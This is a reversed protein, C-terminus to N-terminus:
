EIVIQAPADVQWSAGGPLFDLSARGKLSSSTMDVVVSTGFGRRQSPVSALGPPGGQERWVMRFRQTGDEGPDLRWSLLVVGDPVSLAGYKTANTALEHLALGLANAAEPRLRLQDGAIQLRPGPEAFPALQSTVLEMLEVGGRRGSVVLDQLRALAALRASYRDLADSTSGTRLTRRAIAEVVTLLNKSRHALERILVTNRDLTERLARTREQLREASSRLAAAVENAERVPSKLPPPLQDGELLSASNAIQQIPHAILRALVFALGLALAGLVLGVAAISWQNTILAARAVSAPVNASILWGTLPSVRAARVTEVGEISTTRFAASQSLSQTRLEEPLTKGVFEEHRQLRAIIAGKRDTVGTNWEPPLGQSKMIELLREPNISMHLFGRLTGGFVVPVTVTIVPRGAVTGLILDSYHPKMTTRVAEDIEPQDSRPLDRGWPARTNLLQQGDLDRYLLELGLPHLAKSASAHFSRLDDNAIEISGALVSLTATMLQLQGDIDTALDAAVQEARRDFQEGQRRADHDLLLATVLLAPVVLSAGYLFLLTSLRWGRSAPRQPGAEIGTKQM